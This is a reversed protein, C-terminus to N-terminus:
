VSRSRSFGLWGSHNETKKKTRNEHQKENPIASIPGIVIVADDIYSLIKKRCLVVNCLAVGDVFQRCVAAAAAAAFSVSADNVCLSIFLLSLASHQANLPIEDCAGVDIRQGQADAVNTCLGHSRVLFLFFQARCALVHWMSRLGNITPKLKGSYFREAM